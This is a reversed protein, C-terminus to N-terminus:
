LCIHIGLHAFTTFICDHLTSTFYLDNKIILINLIFGVQMKFKWGQSSLHKLCFSITLISNFSPANKAYKFKIM